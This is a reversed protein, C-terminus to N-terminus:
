ASCGWACRAGSAMRDHVLPAREGCQSCPGIPHLAHAKVLMGIEPPLLGVVQDLMSERVALPELEFMSLAAMAWRRHVRAVAGEAVLLRARNMSAVARWMEAQTESTTLHGVQARQHWERHHEHCLPVTHYDDTKIGM